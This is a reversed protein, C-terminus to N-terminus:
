RSSILPLEGTEADFPVSAHEHTVLWKGQAKRLCVTDRVWMDITGGGTTSGRFWNLSHCSAVEGGATINLDRIECDVPGKFTSLWQKLRESLANLGVRKLPNIVDFLLVDSAYASTLADVDKARLANTWDDVIARIQAEDSASSRLTTM